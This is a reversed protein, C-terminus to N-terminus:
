GRDAEKAPTLPLQALAEGCMDRKGRIRHLFTVPVTETDIVAQYRAQESTLFERLRAITADRDALAAEAAQLKDWNTMCATRNAAALKEEYRLDKTLRANAEQQRALADSQSTILQVACALAHDAEGKIERHSPKLNLSSRSGGRKLMAAWDAATLDPRPADTMESMTAETPTADSRSRRGDHSTWRVKPAANRPSRAFIGAGRDRHRHSQPRRREGRLLTSGSGAFPDLVTGSPAFGLCWKMLAVPKQTPHQKGGDVGVARHRFIRPAFRMDTWCFEAEGFNLGDIQKDWVLYGFTPGLGLHCGGWVFRAAGITTLRALTDASPAVDWAIRGNDDATGSRRTAASGTEALIGYPPDTVVVGVSDAALTPLVDRCDAHYITVADDAYYPRVTSSAPAALAKAANVREQMAAWDAATLDPRPADTM